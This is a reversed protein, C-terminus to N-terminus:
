WHSLSHSGLKGITKGYIRETKGNVLNYIAGHSMGSERAVARISTRAVAQRVAALLFAEEEKGESTM